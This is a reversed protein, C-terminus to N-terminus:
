IESIQYKKIIKIAEDKNVFNEIKTWKNKDTKKYYSFFHEIKELLFDKVDTIDNIDNCCNDVENSPVSIIKEDLGKEDSMILAGIVKTSVICGPYIPYNTLVLIDLPDGDDALTNKIYGYNGPYTMSSSLIRDLRMVNHEKDFEYKLNSGFPIEILADINM